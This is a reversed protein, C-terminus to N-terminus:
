LGVKEPFFDPLVVMMERTCDMAILSRPVGQHVDTIYGRPGFLRSVAEGSAAKGAGDCFM